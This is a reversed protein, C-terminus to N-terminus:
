LATRRRGYALPVANAVEMRFEWRKAEVSGSKRVRVSKKDFKEGCWKREDSGQDVGPRRVVKDIRVKYCKVGDLGGNNRRTSEGEEVARRGGRDRMGRTNRDLKGGPFHQIKVEEDRLEVVTDGSNQSM